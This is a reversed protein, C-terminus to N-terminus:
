ADAFSQWSLDKQVNLLTIQRILLVALILILDMNM